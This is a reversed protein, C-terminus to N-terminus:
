YTYNNDACNQSLVRESFIFFYKLVSILVHKEYVFHIWGNYM